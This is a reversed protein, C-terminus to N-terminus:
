SKREYAYSYVPNQAGNAVVGIVNLKDLMAIAQNLETRTVRGIRGVMIVGSTFSAAMIADVIGLVPPADLLVLDYSDEFMTLVEQMRKSSLLKAPDAPAPGATLVSINGLTRTLQIGHVDEPTTLAEGALMTSLGYDNPLNLLKHLSPRRLDADILLVRQHLRAASVALGLALTTKGEGALASTVVLSKFAGNPNLLQINKYLLDLSERFPLWQIVELSSSALTQHRRFPLNMISPSAEPLSLEPVMGLLPLSIQKRMDDSTHVSDDIAERVFAAVGGLMLGAVLGLMVNKQVDPGMKSGIQPEEVVQWDFGGRAIELGLEQEAKLLQELTARNVQVEPQLRGYQSLLAPFRKLDTQLRREANSLSIARAQAAELNVQAEVLQEVLKLDVAGLQGESLAGSGPVRAANDKLIRQVEQRLLQLQRSRQDQLDQVFPLSEDVFRVRQQELALETKQIENLLSQYRTSQSLRAAILAQSPSLNLQGQLATYRSQFEKLQAANARQDQRIQNLSEVLSKAQLEPDVLNQNTRFKELESEAQQLKEKVEPLQEKIFALGRELRLKQQERNYDKYVQEFAELVRRAKEPDIDTYAIQYIKTNVKKNTDGDTEAVPSVVLSERIESVTIDPYDAKLLDVARRILGSSQMLSIQTASDVEVNIDTFQSEPSQQQGIARKGQYNPEVLLRMSSQFSPKELLTMGLALAAVGCSVGILWFRRRMLIAFLQGYGPDADTSTMFNSPTV